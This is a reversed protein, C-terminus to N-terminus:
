LGLYRATCLEGKEMWGRGSFRCKAGNPGCVRLDNSDNRHRVEVAAVSIVQSWLGREVGGVVAGDVLVAVEGFPLVVPPTVVQFSRSRLMM